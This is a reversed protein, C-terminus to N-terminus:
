KRRRVASSIAYVSLYMAMAIGIGLLFAGIWEAYDEIGLIVESSRAANDHISVLELNNQDYRVTLIFDAGNPATIVNGNLALTNGEAITFSVSGETVGDTNKEYLTHSGFEISDFAACGNADTVAAQPTSHLELNLNNIAKNEADVMKVTCKVSAATTETTSVITENEKATAATEPTQTSFVTSKTEDAKTGTSSETTVSSESHKATTPEEKTSEEATTAKATTSEETTPKTPTTTPKTPVTTPKTPEATPKTPAVTPKTPEATTPATTPKTPEATTPAVTPKPATTPAVTPESETPKTVNITFNQSTRKLEEDRKGDKRFELAITNEGDQNVYDTNEFTEGYITIRTSGPEADYDKGEVLKQGNLWVGCYENDFEVFEGYSVFVADEFSTLVFNYDGADTGLAQKISYGDDSANYVNENSNDLVTLVLEVKSSKFTYTDSKFTAEVTIPFTGVEQPVGYIEGTEPIWEVGDPLNGTLTYKVDTWDYMNNTTILCSYPVFKVADDLKTTMIQPNRAQGSLRIVVPDCENCSITLTGEVEGEGDPLLRIKALNALEGYQVQSSTETFPALTENGSGGFTWYDDLKVNTADLTVKLGTLPQGGYNAILIEHKYEFYEDLFVERSEPGFVYLKAGAEKKIMTVEYNIVHDEFLVHFQVAGKSFDVTSGPTFEKQGVFVRVKQDNEPWFVPEIHSMDINELEEASGNIFLTQRHYGYLTDMTTSKNNEVVYTDLQKGNYIAGTVRFWPDQDGVIPAETFERWQQAYETTKVTIKMRKTGDTFFNDKYFITFDIGNGAYNALYGNGFLLTDKIDELGATEEITDYHGLVIKEVKDNQNTDKNSTVNFHFYYEADAPYGYKLEEQFTWVDDETEAQHYVVSQMGDDTLENLSTDLRVYGGAVLVGVLKIDCQIGDIYYLVAFVNTDKTFQYGKTPDSMDQNLIQDTIPPFIETGIQNNIMYQNYEYVKVSVRPHKELESNLELLARKCVIPEEVIYGYSWLPIDTGDETKIGSSVVSFDSIAPTIKERYFNDYEAYIDFSMTEEFKDAFYVKVIYRINNPDLQNGSGVILEMQYENEDNVPSLDVTENRDVVHREDAIISGTEDKFRSWVVSADEPIQEFNGDSDQLLSLVTSVPMAKIQEDSFGTLILYVNKEQLPLLSQVIFGDEFETGEESIEEETEVESSEESTEIETETETEAEIEVDTQDEPLEIIDETESSEESTDYIAANETVSGSESEAMTIAATSETEATAEEANEISSEQAITETQTEVVPAETPVEAIPAVPQIFTESEAQTNEVESVTEANSTEESYVNTSFTLGHYNVASTVMLVTSALIALGKKARRM